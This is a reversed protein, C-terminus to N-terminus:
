RESVVITLDTYLTVVVQRVSNDVIMGAIPGRLKFAGFSSYGAPILNGSAPYAFGETVCSQPIALLILSMQHNAAM